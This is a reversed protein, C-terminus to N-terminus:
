FGESYIPGCNPLNVYSEIIGLAQRPWTENPPIVFDDGALFAGMLVYALDVNEPITDLTWRLLGQGDWVNHADRVAQLALELDEASPTEVAGIVKLKRLVREALEAAASM